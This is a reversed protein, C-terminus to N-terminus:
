KLQGCSRKQCMGSDKGEQVPLCHKFDEVLLATSSTDAPHLHFVM